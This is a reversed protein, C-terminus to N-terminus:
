AHQLSKSPKVSGAPKSVSAPKAASSASGGQEGINFRSVLERLQQAQGSLEESSGSMEEAASANNETVAAINQIAKAVEEATTSQESTAEAIQGISAATQEVGEIIKKLAEGTQESLAAGEKVRQTSEKILQTIEKAAQSSREALKRVEDAVVAFGLGHEGARAAEIAANLALLNTQSAIESIVGIIEGIQEASKDILKMAEINKGVAKGGEEARESTARAVSNANKANDAVGSIMKNLNQISASMEEVNASQTQAGDSLSTAGESVVRAGEGFQGAAEVIQGIVEKLGTIMMELGGALQGIADEGNVTVPKTLDGEAAASVTDLLQNVKDQLAQANQQAEEMMLKTRAELNLKDTINAWCAMAGVYEGKGDLIANVTLDLSQDGVKIVANRPLNKVDGLVRRQHSPDKHFIDINAGVIKDLSVPLLSALPALNKKTAPNVYTIKLDRDALMMNIPASEVMAQLSAMRARGHVEDTIDSAYKVVKCPKGKVDLVPFYMGRIWIERGGKAFRQFEGTHTEGRNLKAWFERYESSSRYDSGVFMGHHQGRIEDMRYGMANLFNDNANLITGDLKFEIAAMMSGFAAVQSAFEANQAEAKVRATVDEWNVVQGVYEGSEDFVAAVNLDLTMEGLKIDVRLPLNKPNSLTQRIERGREGHFRDIPGGLLQDVSLGLQKRIVGEIARLTQEARANMYILNLDRDGLFINTGLNDLANKLADLNATLNRTPDLTKGSNTTATAMIKEMEYTM